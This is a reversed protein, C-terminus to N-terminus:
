DEFPRLRRGFDAAVKPTREGLVIIGPVNPVYMVEWPKGKERQATPRATTSWSDVTDWWRMQTSGNASLVIWYQTFAEVLPHAISNVTYLTPETARVDKISFSEIVAAPRAQM